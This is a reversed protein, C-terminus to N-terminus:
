KEEIEQQYMYRFTSQSEKGYMVDWISHLFGRLMKWLSLLFEPKEVTIDRGYTHIKM